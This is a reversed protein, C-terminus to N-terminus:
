KLVMLQLIIISHYIHHQQVSDVVDYSAPLITEPKKIEFYTKVFTKNSIKMDKNELAKTEFQIKFASNFGFQWKAINIHVLWIRWFTPHPSIKV